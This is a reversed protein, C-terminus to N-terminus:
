FFYNGYFQGIYAEKDFAASQAALVTAHDTVLSSLIYEGTTNIINLLVLLLAILRLYPSRLVLAFGNPGGAAAAGAGTRGAKRKRVAHYLLLHVVLLVAAIQMMAWTSVGAGFLREALAAGLPAGATAGIAILPFLRDGESKEYTDNAISWFQAISTLSFIGVWVYFIFGLDKVGARGGVVFLEICAVFFVLVAVVLQRPTLRSAVCGYAPVYFLLVAAQAASAYIKLEAGGTALILPERVTKLIYYAVLLLFINAFMLLCDRTEGPQVDGFVALLGAGKKKDLM